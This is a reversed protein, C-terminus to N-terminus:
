DKKTYYGNVAIGTALGTLVGCVLIYEILLSFDDEVYTKPVRL